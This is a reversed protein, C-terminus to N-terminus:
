GALDGATGIRLQKLVQVPFLEDLRRHLMFDAEPQGPTPLADVRREARPRFSRELVWTRRLVTDERPPSKLARMRGHLIKQLHKQMALPHRKTPQPASSVVFIHTCAYMYKM